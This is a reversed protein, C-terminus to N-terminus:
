GQSCAKSRRKLEKQLVRDFFAAFSIELWFIAFFATSVVIHICHWVLFWIALGLRQGGNYKHKWIYTMFLRKGFSQSKIFRRASDPDTGSLANDNILVRFYQACFVVAFVILATVIVSPVIPIEIM